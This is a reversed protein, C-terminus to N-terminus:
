RIDYGHITWDLDPFNAADDLADAEQYYYATIEVPSGEIDLCRMSAAFEVRSDGDHQVRNTFDFDMRELQEVAALGVNHILTARTYTGKTSM